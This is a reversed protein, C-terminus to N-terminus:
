KILLNAQEPWTTPDALRFNKQSLIDELDKIKMTSLKEFSFINNENLLREIAPGIGKIQTLDDKQTKKVPKKASPKEILKPLPQEPDVNIYKDVFANSLDKKNERLNFLFYLFSTIIGLFLGIWLFLYNKKHNKM